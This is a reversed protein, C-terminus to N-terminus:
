LCVGDLAGGPRGFVEAKSSESTGGVPRADQVFPPCEADGELSSPISGSM